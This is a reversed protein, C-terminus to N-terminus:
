NWFAQHKAILYCNRAALNKILHKCYTDVSFENEKIIHKTFHVLKHEYYHLNNCYDHIEM